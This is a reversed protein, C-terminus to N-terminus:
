GINWWLAFGKTLADLFMSHSSIAKPWQSGQYKWSSVKFGNHVQTNWPWQNNSVAPLWGLFVELDLWPIVTRLTPRAKEKWTKKQRTTLSFYQLKKVSTQYLWALHRKHLNFCTQGSSCTTVCRWRWISSLTKWKGPEKSYTDSVRVNGQNSECRPVREFDWSQLYAWIWGGLSAFFCMGLWGKKKPTARAIFILTKNSCRSFHSVFFLEHTMINWM